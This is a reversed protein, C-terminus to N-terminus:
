PAAGGFWLLAFIGFLKEVLYRVAGFPRNGGLPLLLWVLV